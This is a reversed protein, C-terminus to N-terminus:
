ERHMDFYQKKPTLTKLTKAIETLSKEINQNSTKIAIIEMKIDIVDKDKKMKHWKM